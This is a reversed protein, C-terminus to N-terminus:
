VKNEMVLRMNNIEQNLRNDEYNYTGASGFYHAAQAYWQNTREILDKVEDELSKVYRSDIKVLYKDDEDMLEEVQEMFREKEINSEFAPFLTKKVKYLDSFDKNTMPKQPAAPPELCRNTDPSEPEPTQCGIEVNLTLKRKLRNPHKSTNEIVIWYYPDNYVLKAQKYPDQVKGQFNAVTQTDYWESMHIYASNYHNGDMSCMAVLDIRSVKGLYSEVVHKIRETSIYTFVHPIYLSMNPSQVFTFM